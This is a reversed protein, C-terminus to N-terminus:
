IISILLGTIPFIEIQDDEKTKKIKVKGYIGLFSFLFSLSFASIKIDAKESLVWLESLVLDLPRGGKGKGNRDDGHLHWSHDIIRCASMEEMEMAAMCIGFITLPRVVGQKGKNEWYGIRFWWYKM